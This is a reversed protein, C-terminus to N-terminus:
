GSLGGIVLSALFPLVFFGLFFIIIFDVARSKSAGIPELIYREASRHLMFYIIFLVGASVLATIIRREIFITGGFIRNLFTFFFGYLIAAGLPKTKVGQRCLHTAYMYLVFMFLIPGGIELFGMM